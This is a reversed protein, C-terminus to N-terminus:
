GTFFPQLNSHRRQGSPSIEMSSPPPPKQRSCAGPHKLPRRDPAQRFRCPPAIRRGFHTNEARHFTSGPLTEGTEIRLLHPRVPLFRIQRPAGAKWGPCSSSNSAAERDCAPFERGGRPPSDARRDPQCSPPLPGTRHGCQRRVPRRLRSRLWRGPASASACSCANPAARRVGPAPSGRGPKVGWVGAGYGQGETHKSSAGVGSCM